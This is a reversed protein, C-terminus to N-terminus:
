GPALTATPGAPQPTWTPPPPNTPAPAMTPAGNTTTDTTGTGQGTAPAPAASPAASATNSVCRFGISASPQDPPASMRHVARLFLPITDWSGGRIVREVGNTPGQPNPGAAAGQTYYDSQYWDKVWESVNGSMNLVGYPSQGGPYEEVPVTGANATVSSMARSPDYQFGWPYIYNQSGRAAREWEAETPLRRNLTRCYEAAGWWTVYTIPHNAYFSANVMTYQAGDFEILSNPEEIRTKVCPNGQCGTTHENPGLWNLFTVYQALSVETVEMEFSDVTTAHPPISDQIWNLDTCSKGYLGCEDMAQKGEELTTGMMFTGGTVPVTDSKIVDLESPVAAAQPLGIAETAQEVPPTGVVPTDGIIPETQAQTQNQGTATPNLVTSNSASSGDATNEITPLPSPTATVPMGSTDVPTTNAPPQAAMDNGTTDDTLTQQGADLTQQAMMMQLAVETENPQVQAQPTPTDDELIPFTIGGLAYGGVCVVMAFGLGLFTGMLLWQWSSDSTRRRLSGYDNM